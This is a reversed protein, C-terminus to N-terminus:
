DCPIENWTGLSDKLHVEGELGAYQYCATRIGACQTVPFKSLVMHKKLGICDCTIMSEGTRFLPNDCTPFNILIILLYVLFLLSAFVLYKRQSKYTYLIILVLNIIIFNFFLIPVNYSKYFLTSIYLMLSLIIIGFTIATKKWNM